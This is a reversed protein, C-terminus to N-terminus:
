NYKIQLEFYGESILFNVSEKTYKLIMFSVPAHDYQDPFYYFKLHGSKMLM